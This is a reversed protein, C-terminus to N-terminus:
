HSYAATKWAFKKSVFLTYIFAIQGIPAIDMIFWNTFHFVLMLFALQLDFRKTFFGILPLFELITGSLFLIRALLPHAILYLNVDTRISLNQELYYPTLQNILINSFYNISYINSQQIKIAAASVYFFLLFYRILEFSIERSKNGRFLFPILVLFFGTMYNRSSILGMYTMYFILLLCFLWLAIKNKLPNYILIIFALIIGADCLLALWTNQLITQPIKAIYVVWFFPDVGISFLADGKLHTFSIGSFLIILYEFFLISLIIRLKNKLDMDIFSSEM